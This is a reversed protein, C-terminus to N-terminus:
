APRMRGAVARVKGPSSMWIAFAAYVCLVGALVFAAAYSDTADHILGTLWPGVAGGTIAALMLTGFISGYHKGEFIEAPIAGFVSTTGYGIFGQFLILAYLMPMSPNSPMLLLVGYTILFGLKACAFVPERGIRDSLWGLAIQGPIGALSVAGLAWAADRASYGIDILFKTQHVQVAYWVWMSCFFGSAIWWFRATRMARALTWEIATWQADVINTRPALTAGSASTRTANPDIGDPHLGLDAPKRTLLLNIPLGIVLVVAALVLCAHRWGGSEILLQMWPLLVMSGIGVGSFAISMALGRRQVFWNPLFLSQGSYGMCVSGGGVLVGLTLYLHWPQTGLTALGLGAVIASIGLVLVFRPGYRDMLKGLVPSLFASILFGFSFAGATVGRDWGYENLIPPMLLSFATRANVGLAMTVFAVAIIIWGYYFPLVRVLRQIM